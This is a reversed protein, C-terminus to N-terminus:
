SSIMLRLVALASPSVTGVDSSAVASSTISYRRIDPKPGDGVFRAIDGFGPVFSEQQGYAQALDNKFIMPREELWRTAVIGILTKM